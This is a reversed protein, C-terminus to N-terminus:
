HTRRVAAIVEDLEAASLAGSQAYVLEGFCFAMITPISTIKLAATLSREAETDVKAFVVDPHRLSAAEFVPGFQRCPPCWGAWFDVLMRGGRAVSQKFDDSTLKITGVSSGRGLVGRRLEAM